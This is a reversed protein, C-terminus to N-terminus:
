EARAVYTCIEKKRGDKYFKYELFCYSFNKGDSTSKSFFGKGDADYEFWTEAYEYSPSGPFSCSSKRYVVNGDEDDTDLIEVLKGDFHNKGTRRTITGRIKEYTYETFYEKKANDFSDFTVLRSSTIRGNEDYNSWSEIENDPLTMKSYIENGNGDYKIISESSGSFKEKEFIKRGNSDYEFVKESVEVGDSNTCSQKILNRYAGYEFLTFIGDSDKKSLIRGNSDYKIKTSIKHIKDRYYTQNGFSDYRHYYDVKGDKDYLTVKKSGDKKYEIKLSLFAKVSFSKGNKFVEGEISKPKAAVFSLGLILVTLVAFLKKM